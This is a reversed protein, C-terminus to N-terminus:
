KKELNIILAENKGAVVTVKLESTQHKAYKAPLVNQANVKLSEGKANAAEYEADTYVKDPVMKSVSILYEGPFAGDNDTLTQISFAGSADSLAGATRANEGTFSPSLTISAGELPAGDLTIKGKVPYLGELGVEKKCGTFVISLVLFFCVLGVNKRIM